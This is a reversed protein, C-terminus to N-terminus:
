TEFTSLKQLVIIIHSKIPLVYIKQCFYYNKESTKSEVCMKDENGLRLFRYNGLYCSSAAKELQGMSVKILITFNKRNSKSGLTSITRLVFASMYFNCTNCFHRQDTAERFTTAKTERGGVHRLSIDHDGGGHIRLDTSGLKKILGLM